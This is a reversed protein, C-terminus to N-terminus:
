NAAALAEFGVFGAGVLGADTGLEARVIRVVDRVPRLAERRVAEEAAPQLHRWAAIGFGGGIVILEPEFANAFSAIGSGLYGGIEELISCATTDGDDALRVLFEADAHPGLAAAAAASAALGSVYAELHGRGTCPERCPRGGHVVVVHGLEAGGGSAGRFPRGGAIVGGGCGTGLTLMVVDDAGRAAGAKWEGIAAANADNDLGVPLGLRDRMRERLDVDALPVNVAQVVRGRRQDIAGPVGFGIAAVTDDLLERVADELADLLEDQSGTPTARERRGVITGDYAVVGALIKTGGVDVGIAHADAM